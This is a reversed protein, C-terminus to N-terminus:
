AVQTANGSATFTCAGADGTASASYTFVFTYVGYHYTSNNTKNLITMPGITKASTGLTTASSNSATGSANYSTYKGTASVNSCATTTAGTKYYKASVSHSANLSGENHVRAVLTIVDGPSGWAITASISSEGKTVSCTSPKGSDKTTTATCTINSTDWSVNWTSGITGSGTISLSTSFAAYAVSLVFVAAIALIITTTKNGKM